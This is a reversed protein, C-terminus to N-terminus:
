RPDMPAGVPEAEAVGVKEVELEYQVETPKNIVEALKPSILDGMAM